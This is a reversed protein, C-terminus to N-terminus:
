YILNVEVYIEATDSDDEPPSMTGVLRRFRSAQTYHISLNRPYAIANEDCLLGHEERERTSEEGGRVENFVCTRYYGGQVDGKVVIRCAVLQDDADGNSSFLPGKSKLLVHRQWPAFANAMPLAILVVILTIWLSRSM